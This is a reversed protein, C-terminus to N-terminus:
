EALLRAIETEIIRFDRQCSEHNALAGHTGEHFEGGPHVYRITGKRDVLFSVSTFDRDQSLWWRKLASWDGDLAVPFTFQKEKSASEVKNMDWDGAPKPHYIGIVQLGRDGYESQLKRLATATATCLPCGSTWWRLLLVKGRLDSIELPRSHFWLKLDLAAAPRGVLERGDAYELEQASLSITTLVPVV